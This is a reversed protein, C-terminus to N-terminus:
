NSRFNLAKLIHYLDLLIIKDEEKLYVYSLRFSGIYVELTGKRVYKMPKGIEPDDLIKKIQKKVKEKDANNRIKHLISLFNPSHEIILM